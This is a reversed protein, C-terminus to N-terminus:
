SRHASALKKVEQRSQTAVTVAAKRRDLWGGIGNPMFLLVLLVSAGYILLRLNSEGVIRLAEPLVTFFLSSILGGAFSGTGGVVAMMLFRFSEQTIFLDPTLFRLYAAFIAGAFGALGASLGFVFLKVGYVNIGCAAAAFEDAKVTKLLNGLVSREGIYRLALVLFGAVVLMIYYWMTKSVAGTPIGPLGMPGRTIELNLLLQFILVGFGMTGIALYHGKLRAASLSILVGAVAGAVTGALGALLPHVGHVSLVGMVYAGIGVFSAQGFSLLGTLGNLLNLSFVVISFILSMTVMNLWYSGIIRPLGLIVAVALLGMVGKYGRFM